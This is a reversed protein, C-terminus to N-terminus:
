AKLEKKLADWPVRGSEKLAHDVAANDLRDELERRIRRDVMLKDLFGEQAGKPLSKFATWFIETTAQLSTM